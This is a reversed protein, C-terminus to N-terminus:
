THAVRRHSLEYKGLLWKLLRNPNSRSHGGINLLEPEESDWFEEPTPAGSDEGHYLTTQKWDYVTFVEAKENTFVYEGSVKCSDSELPKGFMEVLAAPPFEFMKLQNTENTDANLDLKFM